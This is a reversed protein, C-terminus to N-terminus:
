DPHVVEVSEVALERVIEAAEARTAESNLAGALDSVKRRYADVPRFGEFQLM